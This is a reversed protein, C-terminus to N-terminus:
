VYKKVYKLSMSENKYIIKDESLDDSYKSNGDVSIIFLFTQLEPKIQTWAAAITVYDSKHGTVKARGDAHTRTAVHNSHRM